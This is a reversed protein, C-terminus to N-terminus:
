KQQQGDQGIIIIGGGGFTPMQIAPSNLVRDIQRKTESLHARSAFDIKSGGPQGLLNGIKDSLDRLTYAVM